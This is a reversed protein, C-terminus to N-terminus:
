GYKHAANGSLTGWGQTTQLPPSRDQRRPSAWTKRALLLVPQGVRRSKRLTPLIYGVTVAKVEEIRSGKRNAVRCLGFGVRDFSGFNFLRRRGRLTEHPKASTLVPAAPRMAGVRRFDRLTPCGNYVRQWYLGPWGEM